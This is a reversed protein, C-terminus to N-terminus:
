VFYWNRYQSWRCLNMGHLMWWIFYMWNWNPKRYPTWWFLFVIKWRSFKRRRCWKNDALLFEYTIKKEEDEKMEMNWQCRIGNPDDTACAKNSIGGGSVWWHFKFKPIQIITWNQVICIVIRWKHCVCIFYKMFFM